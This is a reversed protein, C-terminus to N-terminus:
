NLGLGFSSLMKQIFATQHLFYGLTLFLSAWLTAGLYAFLAFQSFKEDVSGAIFGTIHRVVPIYYGFVLTWKGYREFWRHVRDHRKKTLGIARGWKKELFLHSLKNGLFYSLSIGCIGGLIGASYTPFLSLKEQRILWGSIILLTEDPIPLGAIGLALLLFLVISGYQLIWNILVSDEM